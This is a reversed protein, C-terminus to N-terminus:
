CKAYLLLRAAQEQEQEQISCINSCRWYKPSCNMEGEKPEGPAKLFRRKRVNSKELCFGKTFGVDSM